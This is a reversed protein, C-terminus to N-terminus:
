SHSSTIHDYGSKDDAVSQYSDKHVYRPNISRGYTLSVIMMVSVFQSPEVTLPMLIRPPSVEGVRGWLYIAGTALRDLISRSIFFSFLKCSVHNQFIKCLPLDCDFNEGKFSGRFHQFYNFVNIGNGTWGLVEKTTDCDTQSAISLWSELFKHLQRALFHHPNRFVLMSSDAMARGVIVDQVFDPELTSQLSSFKSSGSHTYLEM